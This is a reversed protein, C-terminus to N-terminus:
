ITENNAGDPFAVDNFTFFIYMILSILRMVCRIHVNGRLTSAHVATSEITQEVRM